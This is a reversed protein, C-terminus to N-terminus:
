AKRAVVAYEGERYRDDEVHGTGLPHFVYASAYGALRCLTVSVEPFLPHHHTPDVWFTKLAHPAHPNITEAVFLGGPALARHSLRMFRALEAFSMHEIVQTSFVAGLSAEPQRELYDSAADLVVDEHGKARCREVMEPDIDVGTYVLGRERLLDLFEGRGCGADLVPTRGDLLELYIQQREKVRQEPGRFVDEFAAYGGEHPHGGDRYGLVVGAFPDRFQELAGPAVYPQARAGAIVPETEDLRSRLSDLAAVVDATFGDLDHRELERVRADLTHLAEVLEEDVRRQHTTYPRLFRLVLRRALRRPGRGSAPAPGRQALERASSALRTSAAPEESLRRM